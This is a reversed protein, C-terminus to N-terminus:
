SYKLNLEIVNAGKMVLDRLGTHLRHHEFRTTPGTVSVAGITDENNNKIPAAVCRMGLLREEDDVAYGEQRIKQLHTQLTKTDTITNPTFQQMGVERIIQASEHEPLGALVAKGLATCHLPVRMGAHVDVHVADRGRSQYLYVGHNNEYVLVHSLERSKEALNDVEPKAYEYLPRCNRTSEGFDLLRLGLAYTQEKQVVLGESKLTQLHNFITSKSMALERALDTVRMQDYQKLLELVAVSTKTAQIPKTSSM